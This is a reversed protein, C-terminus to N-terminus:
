ASSPGSGPVTPVASGSPTIVATKGTFRGYREAAATLAITDADSWSAFPTAEIRVTDTQFTRKWVGAVQGGRIIVSSFIGHGAQETHAPDLVARRDKYAVTYEDYVPLLHVDPSAPNSAPTDSAMWYTKGEIVERTLESSVMELGTRADATTLGSWWAYDQLTAPGHSTFYRRTLEALAEDRELHKALPTREDLLAYTIQKGRRAGSCLVGDLEARMVLLTLRLETTDIGAQQLASSLEAKTLQKGGRLADALVANSRAFLADDLGSKRYYHANAANVRPGTLVLMWRIDAPSVFHWTPRLIHTRLITGANLAQEVMDDTAAELRLGVAWKAAEYEQAQVAGFWTVVDSPAKLSTATLRHNGLRHHVIDTNTM